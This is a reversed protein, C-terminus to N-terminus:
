GGPFQETPRFIYRDATMTFTVPSIVKRAVTVLSRDSARNLRTRSQAAAMTLGLVVLVIGMLIAALFYSSYDKTPTVTRSQKM